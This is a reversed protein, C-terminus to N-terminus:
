RRKLSRLTWGVRHRNSSRSVMEFKSRLTDFTQPHWRSLASPDAPNNEVTLTIKAKHRSVRWLELILKAKDLVKEAFGEVCIETFYEDEFPLHPSLKDIPTAYTIDPLPEVDYNIWGQRPKPGLHLRADKVPAIPISKSFQEWVNGNRVLTANWFQPGIRLITHGDAEHGCQVAGVCVWKFGRKHIATTYEIDFTIDSPFYKFPVAKLVRRSILLCGIGSGAVPFTKKEYAQIKYDRLKNVNFGYPFKVRGDKSRFPPDHPTLLGIDSGVGHEPRLRALGTAIDAEAALLLKLADPPLIIDSEHLFLYDYGGHLALKRAKELKYAINQQTAELWNAETRPFPNDILLMWDLAIGKVDLSSVSAWAADPFVLKGNKGFYTTTAGLIRKMEIM